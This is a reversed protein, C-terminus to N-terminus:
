KSIYDFGLSFAAFASERDISKRSNVVIRVKTIVDVKVTHFDSPFATAGYAIVEM